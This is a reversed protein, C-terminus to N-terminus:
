SSVVNSANDPRETLKGDLWVALNEIDVTARSHPDYDQVGQQCALAESVAEDYHVSVNLLQKGLNRVLLTSIDRDLRKTSDAKNLLFYIGSFNANAATNEKTLDLMTPITAYSAADAHVVAIALDAAGLAHRLALSPGPPTDVLVLQRAGGAVSALGAVFWAGDEAQRQEFALRDWETVAGYPLVDVGSQSRSLAGQWSRGHLTERSVGRPDRPDMGFHLRLANQPDMDVVLVHWGRRVMAIALNATVTTKGVGGKASVIPVIIM